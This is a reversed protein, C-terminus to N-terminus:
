ATAIGMVVIKCAIASNFVVTLQTSSNFTISQPIVVEDGADVVTVNCYKQGLGHTVVHTTASAGDYLHFMKTTGFTNDGKVALVEGVTATSATGVDGLDGLKVQGMLTAPAVVTWTSGDKQLLSKDAGADAGDVNTLDDLSAALSVAGSSVSFFDSSFSAVGKVSTTADAVSVTATSGAFATSIAGSGKVDFKGGLATAASGTDGGFTISSNALQANDIGASKVTVTGDVAVAFDDSSFKAVGLAATTATAVTIVATSGSVAVDVGQASVGDFTITGGLSVTGTTGQDGALSVASNVLKANEISGALMANTVGLPAIALQAASSTSADSGNTTLLLGGASYLDLGVEDTPLEKVGAGLNVDLVNGNKSMGVGATLQGAGTFQVWAGGGGPYVYGTETARDFLAWGDVPAVGADWTDTATATYIKKDTTNLFRDGTTATLPNTAGVSDVPEKWSLGSAVSDVYAKTTADGTNTPTGLGTIKNGGMALNGTMSDGSANVYTADVLATIDSTVVATSTTVRGYADVAAKIFAASGSFPVVALDVLIDGADTGSGNTVVVRNATGAVDKGVMTGDAKRIMIGDDTTNALSVLTPDLSLTINASVGTGSSVAIGDSGVVERTVASGDGTRVIIGTTSLGELAALDNALAITPNGAVGDANTISMGTPVVIERSAFTDAATQVLIGTSTKDALADLAADYKQVGSDAGITVDTWTSGVLKILAGNAAGTLDVDGLQDLSVQGALGAVTVDEWKGSASSYQLLGKDALGTVDVDDLESLQNNSNSYIALKNIADTFSTPAGGLDSFTSTFGGAVFTGTSSIGAGLSTEVADIETQVGTLISANAVKIWASDTSYYFGAGEGGAGTQYIFRGAAGVALGDVTSTTELFANQVRGTGDANFLLHGNIKM